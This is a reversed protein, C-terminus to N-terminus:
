VIGYTWSTTLSQRQVVSKLYVPRRQVTAVDLPTREERDHLNPDAGFALLVKACEVSDVQLFPMLLILGRKETIQIVRCASYDM